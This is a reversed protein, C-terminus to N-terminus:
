LSNSPLGLNEPPISICSDFSYRFLIGPRTKVIMRWGAADLGAAIVKLYNAVM